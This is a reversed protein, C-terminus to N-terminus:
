KRRKIIDWVLTLFKNKKKVDVLFKRIKDIIFKFNYKLWSDTYKKVIYRYGYNLYEKEFQNCKSSLKSPYQLNPQLCNAIDSEICLLNEKIQEFLFRGKETNVLVLSVGKNEKQLEYNIKGIGWFDGITIDSPRHINTYYCNGCAKRLMINKYFLQAFKSSYIKKHNVVYSERSSQWGFKKDRFNVETIKGQNQQELYELNDNWIKGPPSVM